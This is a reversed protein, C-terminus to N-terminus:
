TLTVLIWEREEGLGIWAEEDVEGACIRSAVRKVSDEWEVVLVNLKREARIVKVSNDDYKRSVVIFSHKGSPKEAQYPWFPKLEGVEKRITNYIKGDETELIAHSTWFLLRGSDRFEGNENSHLLDPEIQTNGKWGASTSSDVGRMDIRSVSELGKEESNSCIPAAKGDLNIKMIKLEPELVVQRPAARTVGLVNKWGLWSWSPFKVKDVSGDESRVRHLERRREPLDQAQWEHDPYWVINCWALSEDFRASVSHGWYFEHGTNVEVRRLVGTFADLADAQVTLKRNCYGRIMSDLEGYAFNNGGGFEGFVRHGSLVHFVMDNPAVTTPFAEFAISECCKASECSWFIQNSTIILTRRSCLGEQFTWGRTTWRSDQYSQDLHLVDMLSLNKAVRATKQNIIRPTGNIGALGDFAAGCTAVITMAARSYVLDMQPIQVAKDTDSDQIVCLRDVWLFDVDMEKTLEMADVITKPLAQDTISEPTKMADINSSTTQFPSTKSGWVYSLAFYPCPKPAEVLCRRRVDILRLNAPWSTDSALWPPESCTTGHTELCTEYWRRLLRVNVEERVIRGSPFASFPEEGTTYDDVSPIPHLCPHLQMFTQATWEVPSIGAHVLLRTLSSNRREGKSGGDADGKKDTPIGKEGLKDLFDQLILNNSSYSSNLSKFLVDVLMDTQALKGTQVSSGLRNRGSWFACTIEEPKDLFEAIPWWPKLAHSAEAILNCLDCTSASAATRIWGLNHEGSKLQGNHLAAKHPNFPGTTLQTWDISRCFDCLRVDDDDPTSTM